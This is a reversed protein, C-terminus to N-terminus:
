LGEFLERIRKRTKDWTFDKEVTKRAALAMKDRLLESSMLQELAKALAYPNQKPIIIGNQGNQIYDNVYGVPTSIVPLGCSMAELVSLSTTETLSTLVYIDMAQLYPVVNDKAGVLIVNQRQLSQEIEPVGSGVILLTADKVRMFGRLLTKLDKERALRGHYGIVLRDKPLGLAVKAAAKDKAPAFEKTNVGLHVIQSKTEIKNWHLTEAISESPVLLLDCKSLQRRTFWKVFDPLFQQLLPNRVARPVLEWEISHTFLVLKKHKRAAQIAAYGILGIGQCFVVDHEKVLKSVVSRGFRPVPYDGITWRTLPIQVIHVGPLEVPGFNPCVVTVDYLESLVPLIEKLFRAIGDHRPLFNDTAVLLKRKM